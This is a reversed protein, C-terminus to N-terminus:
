GRKPYVYRIITHERAGPVRHSVQSAPLMRRHRNSM